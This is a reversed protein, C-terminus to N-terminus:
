AFYIIKKGSDCVTPNVIYSYCGDAQKYNKNENKIIEPPAKFQICDNNNCTKRFFTGLGFGIIISLCIKGKESRLIDKILM